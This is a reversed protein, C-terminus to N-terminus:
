SNRFDKYKKRANEFYDRLFITIQLIDHKKLVMMESIPLKSVKYFQFLTALFIFSYTLSSAAAAGKIGYLKVLGFYLPISFLLGIWGIITTVEPKKLQGIFFLSLFWSVGLFIAGPLLLNLPLVASLFQKGYLLKILWYSSVGLLAAIATLIFIMNRLIRTILIISESLPLKTIKPLAVNYVPNVIMWLKETITTALGYYGLSETGLLNNVIFYDIRLFIFHAINGLHGKAGFSISKKFLNYDYSFRIGNEKNFLIIGLVLAWIMNYILSVILFEKLGLKLIYLVIFPIFLSFISGILNSKNILSIEHLGVMISGWYSNYLAIPISLFAIFILIPEINKFIISSFLEKLLFFAAIGLCGVFLSVIISHTFLIGVKSRDESAFISNSINLGMNLLNVAIASITTILIYKGMLAPGLVRYILISTLLGLFFKVIDTLFTNFVKKILM